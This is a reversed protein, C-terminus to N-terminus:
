MLYIFTLLLQDDVGKTPEGHNIKSLHYIYMIIM